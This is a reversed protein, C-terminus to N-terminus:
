MPSFYYIAVCSQDYPQLRSYAGTDIQILIFAVIFISTSPASTALSSDFMYVNIFSSDNLHNYINKDIVM